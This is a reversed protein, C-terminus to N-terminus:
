SIKKCNYSNKITNIFKGISSASWAEDAVAQSVPTYEYSGNKFHVTLVQKNPDYDFSKVQSSEPTQKTQIPKLEPRQATATGLTTAIATKKFNLSKM